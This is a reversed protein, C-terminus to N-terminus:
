HEMKHESKECLMDDWLYFDVRVLISERALCARAHKHTHATDTYGCRTVYVDWSFFFCTWLNPIRTEM